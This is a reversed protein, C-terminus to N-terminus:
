IKWIKGSAYMEKGDIFQFLYVGKDVLNIQVTQTNVGAPIIIKQTQIRVGNVNYINLTVTKEQEFNSNIYATNDDHFLNPSIEIKQNEPPLIDGCIDNYVMRNCDAVPHIDVGLNSVQTNSVCQGCMVSQMFHIAGM